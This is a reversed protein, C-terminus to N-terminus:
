LLEELSAWRADVKMAECKCSESNLNAGCQPCLGECNSHCLPKLPIVVWALERLVPTLEISDDGNVVYPTDPKPSVGPLRFVEELELAIPLAFSELCRVCGSELQSSVTGQVLLGSQVRTVQLTGRVYDVDLDTLDQPGTDVKLDLSTGLRAKILTSVDFRIM